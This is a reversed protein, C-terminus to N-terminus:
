DVEKAAGDKDKERIDPPAGDGSFCNRALSEAKAINRENTKTRKL